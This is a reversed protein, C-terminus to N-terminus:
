RGIWIKDLTSEVCERYKCLIAKLFTIIIGNDVQHMPDRMYMLNICFHSILWFANFVLHAGAMKRQAEYYIAGPHMGLVALPNLTTVHPQM